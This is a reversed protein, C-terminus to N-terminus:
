CLEAEVTWTDEKEPERCCGHGIGRFYGPPRHRKLEDYFAVVKFVQEPKDDNTVLEVEVKGGGVITLNRLTGTVHDETDKRNCWTVRDGKSLSLLRLTTPISTISSM